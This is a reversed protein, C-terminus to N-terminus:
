RGAREVVVRVDRKGWTFDLPDISFRYGKWERPERSDVDLTATEGGASVELKAFVVHDEQDLNGEHAVTRAGAGRNVVSLGTDAVAYRVDAVLLRSEGLATKETPTGLKCAALTSLLAAWSWWSSRAEMM